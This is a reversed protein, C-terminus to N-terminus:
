VLDIDAAGNIDYIAFEGRAKGLAIARYRFPVNESLEIFADGNKNIWTGIAVRYGNTDSTHSALLDLMRRIATTLSLANNAADRVIITERPDLTGGVMYGDDPITADPFYTAGGNHITENAIFTASLM